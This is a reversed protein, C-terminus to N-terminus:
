PKSSSEAVMQSVEDAFDEASKEIGEGCVYRAFETIRVPLEPPGRPKDDGGAPKWGQKKCWAFIHDRVKKKQGMYEQELLVLDAYARKPTWQIKSEAEEAASRAQMMEERRKEHAARHEDLVSQPVDTTDVYDAGFGVVQTALQNALESLAERTFVSSDAENAVLAVAAARSGAVV